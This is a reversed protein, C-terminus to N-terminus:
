GRTWKSFLGGSKKGKTKTAEASAPTSSIDGAFDKQKRSAAKQALLAESRMVQLLETHKPDRSTRRYTLVVKANGECIIDFITDELDESIIRDEVATELIKM